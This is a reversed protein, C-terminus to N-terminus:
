AEGPTAKQQKASLNTKTNPHKFNLKIFLFHLLNVNLGVQVRGVQFSFLIEDTMCHSILILKTHKANPHYITSDVKEKKEMGGTHKSGKIWILSNEKLIYIHANEDGNWNLRAIKMKLYKYSNAADMDQIRIKETSTFDETTLTRKHLCQIVAVWLTNHMSVNLGMIHHNIM